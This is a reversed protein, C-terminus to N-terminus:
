YHEPNELHMLAMMVAIRNYDTRNFRGKTFIGVMGEHEGMKEHATLNHKKMAQSGDLGEHLISHAVKSPWECGPSMGLHVRTGDYIACIAVEMHGTKTGPIAILGGEIGFGYDHDAQAQKARDVAGAVTEEINKPHGFEEVVVAVGEVEAEAFMPYEKLLDAVANVKTKNKSGVGVKMDPMIASICFICTRSRNCALYPKFSPRMFVASELGHLREARGSPADDGMRIDRPIKIHRTDSQVERRPLALSHRNSPVFQVDFQLLVSDEVRRFEIAQEFLRM